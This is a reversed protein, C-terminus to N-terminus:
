PLDYVTVGNASAVIAQQAINLFLGHEVIGPQQIMAQALAHPDDIGNDFHCDLIINNEDTLFPTTATKLPRLVVRAGLSSLYDFVPKEAFPIVEVPVPAKSGLKTVLKSDDAVIIVKKSSTAVIKERLLAGGLGKILDLTPSIEDAGDITIDIVPHENLTTLPINFKKAEAATVESTPIGIINTLRGNQMLRGIARTAHIATSGTGLGVVMGSQVFTVAQEAAQQKLADINM